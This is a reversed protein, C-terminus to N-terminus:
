QIDLGAQTAIHRFTDMEGRVRPAYGAPSQYDMRIGLDETERRVAPDEAVKRVAEVLKHQIGAPVAAPAVLAQWWDLHFGQVGAEEFTPLDPFREDRREGASAIAKVRGSDVYSKAESLHMCQVTGSMVDQIAPGNGRYHVSLTQVGAKMDFLLDTFHNGSGPGATALTLAGPHAKAYAVMGSVDRFPVSPHCVLVTTYSSLQGLPAFDKLPDYHVERATAPLLAYIVSVAYMLSYGDPAARALEAAGIRGGGGPRNDVIVPQKLAEGLHRALIRASLDTIGGAAAPVIVRIPRVPWALKGGAWGAQVAMAAALSVLSARLRRWPLPRTRMDREKHHGGGPPLDEIPANSRRLSHRRWLPLRIHMDLTGIRSLKWHAACQM